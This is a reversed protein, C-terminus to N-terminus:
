RDGREFFAQLLDALQQPNELPLMHRVGPVISLQADGIVQRLAAAMQPTSGVDEEAAIILVPAPIRAAERALEEDAQAFLVYSRLYGVPDNRLLTARVSEIVDPRRASFSPTFWRQLAAPVTPGIGHVAVSLARTRVALKAELSRDHVACVLALRGVSSPSDLAIRQAVMAGMSFGAIDAREIGLHRLLAVIQRAYDALSADLAPLPSGGHGLMDPVIVRRHPAM